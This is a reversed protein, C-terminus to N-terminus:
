DVNQWYPINILMVDGNKTNDGHCIFHNGGMCIMCCMRHVSRIRRSLQVLLHNTQLAELKYIIRIVTCYTSPHSVIETFLINIHIVHEELLTANLALLTGYAHYQQYLAIRDVVRVM